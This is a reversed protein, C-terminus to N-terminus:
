VGITSILGYVINAHFRITIFKDLTYYMLLAIKGAITIYLRPMTVDVFVHHYMNLM